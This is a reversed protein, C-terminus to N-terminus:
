MYYYLIDYFVDFEKLLVFLFYFFVNKALSFPKHQSKSKTTCLSFIIILLFWETKM